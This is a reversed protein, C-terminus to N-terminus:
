QVKLLDMSEWLSDVLYAAHNHVQTVFPVSVHLKIINGYVTLLIHQM